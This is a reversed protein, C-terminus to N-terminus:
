DYLSAILESGSMVKGGTKRYGMKNRVPTPLKALGPNSQKDVPKLVKSGKAREVRSSLIGKAEDITARSPNSPVTIKQGDTTIVFPIKAKNKSNKLVARAYKKDEDM